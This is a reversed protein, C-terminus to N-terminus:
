SRANLTLQYQYLSYNGNIISFCLNKPSHPGLSLRNCWCYYRGRPTTNPLLYFPNKTHLRSSLRYLLILFKSFLNINSTSIIKIIGSTSNTVRPTASPYQCGPLTSATRTQALLAYSKVRPSTDKQMEM